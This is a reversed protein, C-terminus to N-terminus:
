FLKLGREGHPSRSQSIVSCCLYRISKLGREGHPSRGRVAQMIQEAVFKLGREGHPSRSEAEAM